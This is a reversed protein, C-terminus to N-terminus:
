NETRLQRFYKLLNAHHSETKTQKGPSCHFRLTGIGLVCITANDASCLNMQYFIQHGTLVPLEKMRPKTFATVATILETLYKLLNAHHSETKTQKGPSCHFRLTGIGLVCITANDASCLNMQYFIQHGTLVPLEKMRPKTFATVPTM